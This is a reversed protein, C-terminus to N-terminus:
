SIAISKKNTNTSQLAKRYLHAHMKLGICHQVLMRYTTQFVTSKKMTKKKTM